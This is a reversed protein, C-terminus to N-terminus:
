ATAVPLTRRRRALAGLGGLGVIMMTWTAPEPVSAILSVNSVLAFPPVPINGYALFSLTESTSSAKIKTTVDTWGSFGHNPNAYDTTVSSYDNGLTTTLHQTTPGDFGNQQGFAYSYSLTYTKGITLGTINQSVPGTRFAGDLAVFNGGHAALGDWGNGATTQTWLSLGGYDGSSGVNGDTMVFNYSDGSTWGTAVTSNDIQGLGNSLQTFDGNVVFETAQAAAGLTLAAFAAGIALIIKM